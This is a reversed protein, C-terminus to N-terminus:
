SSYFYHVKVVKFIITYNSGFEFIYIKLKGFLLNSGIKFKWILDHNGFMAYFNKLIRHTM